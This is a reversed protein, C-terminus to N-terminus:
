YMDLLEENSKESILITKKDITTKKEDKCLEPKYYDPFLEAENRNLEKLAKEFQLNLSKYINLNKLLRFKARFSKAQQSSAQIFSVKKPNLKFKKDNENEPTASLFNKTNYLINNKAKKLENAELKEGNADRLLKLFPANKIKLGLSAENIAGNHPLYVSINYQHKDRYEKEEKITRLHDVELDKKKSLYKPGIRDGKTMPYIDISPHPSRYNVLEKLFPSTSNIFTSPDIYNKINEINNICSIENQLDIKEFVTLNDNRIKSGLNSFYVVDQDKNAVIRDAVGAKHYFQSLTFIANLANLTQRIEANDKMGFENRFLHYIASILYSHTKATAYNSSAADMYNSISYLPGGNTTTLKDEYATLFTTMFKEQLSLNFDSDMGKSLIMFNLGNYPLIDSYKKGFEKALNILEKVDSQKEQQSTPKIEIKYSSYIQSKGIHKDLMDSLKSYKIQEIEKLDTKKSHELILTNLIKDINDESLGRLISYNHSKLYQKERFHNFIPCCSRILLLDNTRNDSDIMNYRVLASNEKELKNIYNSLSPSINEKLELASCLSNIYDLQNKLGLNLPKPHYFTIPINDNITVCSDNASVEIAQAILKILSKQVYSTTQFLQNIKKHKQLYPPIFDGEKYKKADDINKFIHNLLRSTQRIDLPNFAIHANFKYVKNKIKGKKYLEDYALENMLHTLEAVLPILDKKEMNNLALVRKLKEALVRNFEKINARVNKCVVPINNKNKKDRKKIHREFLERNLHNLEKGLEEQDQIINSSNNNIAFNILKEKSLYPSDAGRTLISKYYAKIIDKTGVETPSLQNIDSSILATYAGLEALNHCSTPNYVHGLTNMTADYSANNMVARHFLKSNERFNINELVLPSNYLDNQLLEEKLAKMHEQIINSYRKLDRLDPDTIAKIDLSLIQIDNTNLYRGLKIRPDKNIKKMYKEYIKNLKDNALEDQADLNNKSSIKCLMLDLSKFYGDRHNQFKELADKKLESLFENPNKDSPIIKKITDIIEQKPESVDIHWTIKRTTPDTTKTILNGFLDYLEKPTVRNADNISSSIYNNIEIFSGQLMEALDADLASNLSNKYFDASLVSGIDPLKEYDYSNIKKVHHDILNDIKSNLANLSIKQKLITNKSNTFYKSSASSMPVTYKQFYISQRNLIRDANFVISM